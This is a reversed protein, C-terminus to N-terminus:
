STTISWLSELRIPVVDFLIGTEVGSLFKDDFSSRSSMQECCEGDESFSDFVGGECSGGQVGNAGRVERYEGGGHGCSCMYLEWPWSSSREEFSWLEGDM